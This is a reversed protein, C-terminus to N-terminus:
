PNDGHCREENEEKWEKWGERRERGDDIRNSANEREVATYELVFNGVEPTCRVDDDLPFEPRRM